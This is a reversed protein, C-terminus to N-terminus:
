AVLDELLDILDPRHGRWAVIGHNVITAVVPAALPSQDAASRETFAIGRATLAARTEDSAACNPLTYLSILM